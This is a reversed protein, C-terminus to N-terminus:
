DSDFPSASWSELVSKSGRDTRHDDGHGAQALLELHKLVFDLLLMLLLFEVQEVVNREAAEFCHWYCKAFGLHTLGELVGEHILAPCFPEDLCVLATGFQFM